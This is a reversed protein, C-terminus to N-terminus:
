QRTRGFTLRAAARLEALWAQAEPTCMLDILRGKLHDIVLVREIADAESLGDSTVTLDCISQALDIVTELWDSPSAAWVGAEPTLGSPTM